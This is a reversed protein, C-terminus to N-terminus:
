HIPLLLFPELALTTQVFLLTHDMLDVEVTDNEVLCMIDLYSIRRSVPAVTLTEYCRVVPDALAHKAKFASWLHHKDPVGNCFRIPSNKERTRKRSM